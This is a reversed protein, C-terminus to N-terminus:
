RTTLPDDMGAPNVIRGVFLPTPIDDHKIAFVFPHNAEFVVPVVDRPACGSFGMTTVAAAETGTEAVQIKAKHTVFDVWLPVNRCIGSLDATARDFLDGLGLQKFAGGLDLSSEFTFKPLSLIVERYKMESMWFDVEWGAMCDVVDDKPLVVYMSIPGRYKLRIMQAFGLNVYQFRHQQWMMPVLVPAAYDAICGTRFPKATTFQPNFEHEWRDKFWIANILVLAMVGMDGDLVRDIMGNTHQSAWDNIEQCSIMDRHFIEGRCAEVYQRYEELLDVANNVFLANAMKIQPSDHWDLVPVDGSLGLVSRLDDLTQGRAGAAILHLLASISFPSYILNGQSPRVQYLRSDFQNGAFM